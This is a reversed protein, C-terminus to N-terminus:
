YTFCLHNKYSKEKKNKKVFKRQTVGHPIIKILNNLKFHNQIFNKSWNSLFIIGDSKKFSYLSLFKFLKFRIYKFVNYRKIEKDLFPLINRFMVITPIKRPFSIGGPSLLIDINSNLIQKDLLFM